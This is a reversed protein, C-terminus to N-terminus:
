PKHLRYFSSGASPDITITFVNTNNPITVWNTTIGVGPANTQGQLEYDNFSSDWSFQIENGNRSFSFSPRPVWVRITGDVALRSVDWNLGAPLPPLNLTAFSGAFTAADFLNFVDGDALANGTATVTLTGGYTLTSIGTVLDNSLVSGTKSIEMTTTGGLTVANGSVTLRGISLGPALTGGANVTLSDNITGDGLLSGGSVIIAGTGSGLTGRVTLTGANVLTGGGHTAAGSLVLTGAGTKTLGGAGTLVGTLLASNANQEITANGNTGSLTMRLVSTWNVSSAITGGGLNIQYSTNADLSGSKIGSPGVTFRGGNLTFTDTGTTNGRADLVIGHASANGANQTYLGIGDIGLYLIGNQEAAGAQNPVAAPVGTINLTGADLTYTSTENPWHGVRFQASVTATGGSQVVEGPINAPNGVFINQHTGAYNPEMILKGASDQGVNLTAFGVTGGLKLGNPTRVNLTGTGTLTNSVTVLDSRYVTLTNGGVAIPGAVWGANTGAGLQLVGASVTTAGTYSNDALLILPSAGTKAAIM